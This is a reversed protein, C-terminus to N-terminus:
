NGILATYLPIDLLHGCYPSLFTGFCGKILGYCPYIAMAMQGCYPYISPDIQGGCPSSLKKALGCTEMKCLFWSALRARFDRIRQHQRSCALNLWVLKSQKAIIGTSNACDAIQRNAGSKSQSIPRCFDVRAKREHLAMISAIGRQQIHQIAYCRRLAAKNGQRIPQYLSRQKLRLPARNSRSWRRRRAKAKDRQTLNKGYM